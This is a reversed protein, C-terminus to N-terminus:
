RSLIPVMPLVCPTFALLLGFGFFTAIVWPLAGSVILGALRDQESVPGGADSTADDFTGGAFPGGVDIRVIKTTPPYCIGDEACGQYGVRLQLSGAASVPM